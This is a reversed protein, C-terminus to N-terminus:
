QSKLTKKHRAGRTPSGKHLSRKHREEWPLTMAGHGITHWLEDPVDKENQRWRMKGDRAFRWREQGGQRLTMAGHGSAHSVDGCM